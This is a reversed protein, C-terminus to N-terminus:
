EEYIDLYAYANEGVEELLEDQYEETNDKAFDNGLKEYLAFMVVQCFSRWEEQSEFEALDSAMHSWFGSYSSYESKLFDAFNPDALVSQKMEEYDDRYVTVTFDMWDGGNNYAKPYHIKADKVNVNDFVSELSQQILRVAIEEGKTDVLQNNVFVSGDKLEEGRDELERVYDGVTYEWIADDLGTWYGDVNVIPLVDTNVDFSATGGSYIRDEANIYKIM